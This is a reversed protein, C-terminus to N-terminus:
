DCFRVYPRVSWLGDHAYCIQDSRKVIELSLEALAKGAAQVQRGQYAGDAYVTGM